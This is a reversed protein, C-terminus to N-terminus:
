VRNYQHYLEQTLSLLERSESFFEQEPGDEFFHDLDIRYSNVENEEKAGRADELSSPHREAQRRNKQEKDALM